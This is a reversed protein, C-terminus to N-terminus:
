EEFTGDGRMRGIVPELLRPLLEAADGAFAFDLPDLEGLNEPLEADLNVTAVCTREGQALGVYSAAPHVVASTGVVLVLDVEDAEIWAGVGALMEGDLAEGFWVVGPRQLGTGCRPCPPLESAPIRALEHAPDLLPLPGDPDVPDEAAAALAPCFPDAYNGREVWGCRGNSCKVDFLSGHLAWLRDPPHNARQSLGDVNQTLCLFGSHKRALAALAYHGANPRAKLAMHRRYAYFLWVLGPDAQFAEPTALRTAEHNRWLGGAGRFTPLGSAASLGAGCLALIRRSRVLVRHFAEIDNFAHTAM